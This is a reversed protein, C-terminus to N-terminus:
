FRALRAKMARKSAKAALDSTTEGEAAIYRTKIGTRATIWEDTTDVMLALDNNSLAKEPLYGGVGRVVSAYESM